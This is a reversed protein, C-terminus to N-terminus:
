EGSRGIRDIMRELLELPLGVVNSFSGEVCEVFRDGTEQIAYAGAKGRWEGSDLYAQIDADSANRMTIYTTDSAILRVAPPGLIALATIVAHRTGCLSRLIARADEEDAPKGIIRGAHSCVTDAGLVWDGPDAEWVSRAKFYALAEALGNPGLGHWGDDPEPVPPEVVRFAWGAEALLQRRRPSASALVLGGGSPLLRGARIGSIPSQRTADDHQERVANL